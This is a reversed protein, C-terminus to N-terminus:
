KNNEIIAIEEETLNYLKYVLNDIKKENDSSDKGQQKQSIIKVVLDIFPKQKTSPIVKIPFKRLDELILKPFLQRVSKATNNVFKKLTGLSM